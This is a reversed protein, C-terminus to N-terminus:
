ISLVCNNQIASLGYTHIGYMSIICIIGYCSTGYMHYGMCICTDIYKAVLILKLKNSVYVHIDDKAGVCLFEYNETFKNKGGVGM